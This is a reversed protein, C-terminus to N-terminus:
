IQKLIWNSIYRECPTNFVEEREPHWQVLCMQENYVAEIIGDNSKCNIILGEALKDISQHHRSNVKISENLLVAEHYNSDEKKDLSTHIINTSIDEILTGGMVINVLQMGRCIGAIYNKNQLAQNIWKIENIDREPKKGYDPGGCLMLIDNPNLDDEPKLIKIDKIGLKDLWSLYNKLEYCPAISITKM